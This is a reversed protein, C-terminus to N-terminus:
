DEDHRVHFRASASPPSSPLRLSSLSFHRRPRTSLCGRVYICQGGNKRLNGVNPLSRHFPVGPRFCNDDLEVAPIVHTACQISPFEVGLFNVLISPSGKQM